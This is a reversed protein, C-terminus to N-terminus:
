RVVVGNTKLQRFAALTAAPQEMMMMHGAEPIVITRSGQLAAALPTIKGPPTMRDEAGLVLLTPCAVKVAAALAGAYQDCAALDSALVAPDARELLRMATEPLRGGPTGVGGLQSQRGFSWGVMMDIVGHEAAHASTLMDPHVAMRPVTGALILASAREPLAAAAQLAVLSGMSHGILTAEGVGLRDLVRWIWDAMAEISALGPGDSGGHGPLDVALVAHGHHAYWRAQSAWVTHDMGAGHILVVVPLDLDFPRGGTAANVSPGDDARGDNAPAADAARPALDEPFLDPLNTAM